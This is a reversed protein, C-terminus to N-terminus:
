RGSKIDTQFFQPSSESGELVGPTTFTYYNRHGCGDFGNRRYGREIFPLTLLFSEGAVPLLL